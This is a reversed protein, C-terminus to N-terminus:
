DEVVLNEAVERLAITVRRKDEEPALDGRVRVGERLLVDREVVEVTVGLNRGVAV